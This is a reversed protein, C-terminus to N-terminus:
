MKQNNRFSNLVVNLFAEHKPIDEESPVAKTFVVDSMAKSVPSYNPYNLTNEDGVSIIKGDNGGSQQMQHFHVSNWNGPEFKRLRTKVRLGSALFSFSLLGITIILIKM